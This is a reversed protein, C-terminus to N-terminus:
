SPIKPLSMLYSGDRAKSVHCALSILPELTRGKAAPIFILDLCLILVASGESSQESRRPLGSM